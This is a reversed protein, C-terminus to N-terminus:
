NLDGVLSIDYQFLHNEKNKHYRTGFHFEKEMVPHAQALIVREPIVNETPIMYVFM